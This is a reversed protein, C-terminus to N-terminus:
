GLVRQLTAHAARDVRGWEGTVTRLMNREARTTSRVTGEHHEYTNAAQLVGHATGAWPAVRSDHMYLKQLTARKRDALSAARPSLPAGSPAQRPVYLDLFRQWQDEHVPTACLTAVEAAFEDTVTHIMALAERAPALQAASYRSHRVKFTQGSEALASERTNDCVVDTVTRKFPEEWILTYRSHSTTPARRDRSPPRPRGLISTGVGDM